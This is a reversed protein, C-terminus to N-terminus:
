NRHISSENTLNTLTSLGIVVITRSRWPEAVVAGNETVVNLVEALM